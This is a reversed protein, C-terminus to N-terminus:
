DPEAATAVYARSLARVLMEGPPLDLVQYRGEGDTVAKAFVAEAQGLALADQQAADASTVLVTANIAPKGKITVRGSISCNRPKTERTPSQAHSPNANLLLLSLCALWFLPKPM